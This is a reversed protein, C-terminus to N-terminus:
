CPPRDPLCLPQAGYKKAELAANKSFQGSIVYDACKHESLLNLPIAAFQTTAGGQLFLVRYNSPINMLERLATEAGHLIQEFEPTRHNMEMVSMGSNAYNLMEAQARELVEIPLISPGASFNYVREM